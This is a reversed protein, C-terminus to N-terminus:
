LVGYLFQVSMKIVTKNGFLVEMTGDKLETALSSMWFKPGENAISPTTLLCASLKARVFSPSKSYKWTPKVKLTVDQSENYWLLSCLIISIKGHFKLVYLLAHNKPVSFYNTERGLEVETRRVANAMDLNFAAAVAAPGPELEILGSHSLHVGHGGFAYSADEWCIFHAPVIIASWSWPLM